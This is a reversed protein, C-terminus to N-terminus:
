SAAAALEGAPETTYFPSGSILRALERREDADDRSQERLRRRRVQAADIMEAILKEAPMPPRRLSDLLDQVLADISRQDQARLERM